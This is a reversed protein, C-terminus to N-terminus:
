NYFIGSKYLVYTQNKIEDSVNWKLVESLEQLSFIEDDMIDVYQDINVNIFNLVHDSYENRM